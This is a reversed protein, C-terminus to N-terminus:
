QSLQMNAPIAPKTPVLDLWNDQIDVQAAARAGTLWDQYTLQVLRQYDTDPVPRVEHGLLQMIYWGTTTQIPDSIQGIQLNFVVKEVLDLTGVGILGFQRWCSLTRTQRYSVALAAFDEGANLRDVVQKATEEDAVIIQRAWVQDTEKPLDATIAEVLKMRLLQSEFIWHLDAESMSTYNLYSSMNQNYLNSTYETPTPLVENTATPNSDPATTPTASPPVETTLDVPTETLVLTPTVPVLTMQLPSLTSTPKIEETPQPTPTGGPYYGLFEELAKSIEEETVTIGRNATEKRVIIYEILSDITNQGLYEPQLQYSIQSLTQIFSSQNTTDGGFMQMFNYYQAYQDVLQASTFSALAQFQRTNSETGDVSVIAQRPTVIYTDVVGWGILLVVLAIVVSSIILITRTQLRERELRALHKKTVIPGKNDKAM